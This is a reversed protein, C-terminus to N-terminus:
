DAGAVPGNESNEAGNHYSQKIIERLALHQKHIWNFAKLVTEVESMSVNIDELRRPHTLRDRIGIATKFDKWGEGDRKLEFEVRAAKALMRFCFILNSDLRLKAKKWKVEGADTLQYSTEQILLLEWPEFDAGRRIKDMHHYLEHLSSAEAASLQQNLLRRQLLVHLTIAEGKLTSIMGEFFAFTARVFGRRWFLDEENDRIRTWYHQVDSRLIEIVGYVVESIEEWSDSGTSEDSNSETSESSPEEVM